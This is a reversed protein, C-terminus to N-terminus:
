SLRTKLFFNPLTAQLFKLCVDHDKIASQVASIDDSGILANIGVKSKLEEVQEQKRSMVAIEFTGDKVLETRFHLHDISILSTQHSSDSFSTRLTVSLFSM